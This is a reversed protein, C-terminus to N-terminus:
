KCVCYPVTVTTGTRYIRSYHVSQTSRVIATLLYQGTPSCRWCQQASVESFSRGLVVSVAAERALQECALQENERWSWHECCATLKDSVLRLGEGALPDLKLVLTQKGGEELRLTVLSSCSISPRPEPLRRYHDGLKLGLLVSKKVSM